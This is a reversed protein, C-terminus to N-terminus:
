ILDNSECIDINDTQTPPEVVYEFREFCSYYMEGTKKNITVEFFNNNYMHSTIMCKFGNRLFAFWVVYITEPNISLNKQKFWDLVVEKAKNECKRQEDHYEKKAKKLAM